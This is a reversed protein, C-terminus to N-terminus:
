NIKYKSKEDQEDKKFKFFIYISKYHSKNETKLFGNM